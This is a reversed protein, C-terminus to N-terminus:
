IGVGCGLCLKFDFVEVIFICDECKWNEVDVLVGVVCVREMYRKVLSCFFCWVFIWSGVEEVVNKLGELYRVGELLKVKM